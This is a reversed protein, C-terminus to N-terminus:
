RCIIVRTGKATHEFSIINRKGLLEIIENDKYRRFLMGSQRGKIFHLMGDPLIEAEHLIDEDTDPPDFTILFVGEPDLVRRIEGISTHAIELTVHDLGAICVVGSFHNEPFPINNFTGQVFTGSLNSIAFRKRCFEVAKESIDVGSVNFGQEALFHANRGGGCGLDLVRIGTNLYNVCFNALSAAPKGLSFDYTEANIGNFCKEWYDRSTNM